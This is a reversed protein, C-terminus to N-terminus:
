NKNVKEEVGRAKTTKPSHGERTEGVSQEEKNEGSGQEWWDGWSGMDKSLEQRGLESGQGAEWWGGQVQGHTKAKRLKNRPVVKEGKARARLGEEQTPCVPFRVM